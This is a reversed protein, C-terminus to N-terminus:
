SQDLNIPVRSNDAGQLSMYQKLSTPHTSANISALTTGVSQDRELLLKLQFTLPMNAMYVQFSLSDKRQDLANGDTSPGM